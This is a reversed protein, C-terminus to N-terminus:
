PVLEVSWGKGTMKDGAAVVFTGRIVITGSTTTEAPTGAVNAFQATGISGRANYWQATTSGTNNCVRAEIIAPFGTTASTQNFVTTGGFFIKFATLTSGTTHQVAYTIRLCKGSALTNAPMTYTYVTSESPSNGDVEAGAPDQKDATFTPIQAFTPSATMDVQNTSVACTVGTSCNLKVMGGGRTYIATGSNLIQFVRIGRDTQFFGATGVVLALVLAVITIRTSRKM